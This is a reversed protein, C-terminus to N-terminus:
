KLQPSWWVFTPKKVLWKVVLIGTAVSIMRAEVQAGFAGIQDGPHTCTEFVEVKNELVSRDDSVKAQSSVGM